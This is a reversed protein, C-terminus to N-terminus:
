YNCYFLSFNELNCMHHIYYLKELLKRWHINFLLENRKVYTLLLFLFFKSECRDRQLKEAKSLTLPPLDTEERIIIRPEESAGYKEITPKIIDDWRDDIEAPIAFRIVALHDVCEQLVYAIARAEYPTLLTERYVDFQMNKMEITESKVSSSEAM